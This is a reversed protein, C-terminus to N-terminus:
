GPLVGKREISQKGRQRVPLALLEESFAGRDVQDEAGNDAFAAIANAM